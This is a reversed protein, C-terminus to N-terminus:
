RAPARVAPGAAPDSTAATRGTSTGSSAPSSGASGSCGPPATRVKWGSPPSSACSTPSTCTCPAPRSSGPRTTRRRRVHGALLRFYLTSTDPWIRTLAGHWVNKWGILTRPQGLASDFQLRYWMLRRDPVGTPAFLNFWGRQIQRRGGISEADIWGEARASHEPEDLFRELDDATITLRFALPEQLLRAVAPPGGNSAGPFCTGSMEESFSLWTRDPRRAPPAPSRTLRRGPARGPGSGVATAPPKDLLRTCMRDALAAITLSPNPGVPGPMAAGDAIYLGPYGFVEGYPDCVGVAPTM